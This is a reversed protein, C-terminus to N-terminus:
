IILCLFCYLCYSTVDCDRYLDVDPKILCGQALIPYFIVKFDTVLKKLEKYKKMLTYNVCM